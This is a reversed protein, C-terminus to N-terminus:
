GPHAGPIGNEVTWSARLRAPSTPEDVTDVVRYDSTWRDRDVRAVVYGRLEGEFDRVHPNDPLAAIVPKVFTSFDSSISTGAFETAVTASGPDDYDVRIDNM